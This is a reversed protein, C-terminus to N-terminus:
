SCEKAGAEKNRMNRFWYRGGTKWMENSARLKIPWASAGDVYRGTRYACDEAVLAATSTTERHKVDVRDTSGVQTLAGRVNWGYTWTSVCM